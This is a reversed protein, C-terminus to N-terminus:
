LRVSRQALVSGGAFFQVYCKGQYVEVFMKVPVRKYKHFCCEDFDSYDYVWGKKEMNYILNGESYDSYPNFSKFVTSKIKKYKGTKVTYSKYKHKKKAKKLTKYQKNSIKGKYKGCKFTHSASVEAVGCTMGIIFILLVILLITKSKM